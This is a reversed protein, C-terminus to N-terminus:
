KIIEIGLKKEFIIVVLNPCVLNLNLKSFLLMFYKNRTTTSIIGTINSTNISYKSEINNISYLVKIITILILLIIFINSNLLIKLRQIHQKEQVLYM